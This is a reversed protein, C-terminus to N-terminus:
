GEKVTILEIWLRDWGPHAKKMDEFSGAFDEAIFRDSTYKKAERIANVWVRKVGRMGVYYVPTKRHPYGSNDYQVVVYYRHTKTTISKPPRIIGDTQTAKKITDEVFNKEENSVLTVNKNMLDRLMMACTLLDPAVAALRNKAMQEATGM